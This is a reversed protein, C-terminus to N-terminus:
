RYQSKLGSLSKAATPVSLWVHEWENGVALPMFGSGGAITYTSLEDRWDLVGNQYGQDRVFGVGNVFWMTELVVSPAAVEAIDVRYASFSGALVSINELATM